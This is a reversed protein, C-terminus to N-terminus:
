ISHIQPLVLEKLAEKIVEIKVKFGKRHDMGMM